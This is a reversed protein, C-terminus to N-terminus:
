LDKPMKKLSDPNGPNSWARFQDDFQSHEYSKNFQDLTIATYSTSAKKDPSWSHQMNLAMIQHHKVFDFIV